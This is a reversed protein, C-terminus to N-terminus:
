VPSFEDISSVLESPVSGPERDVERKEEELKRLQKLTNRVDALIESEELSQTNVMARYLM